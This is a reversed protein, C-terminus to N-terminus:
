QVHTTRRDIISHVTIQGAYFLALIQEANLDSLCCRHVAEVLAASPDLSDVEEVRHQQCACTWTITM